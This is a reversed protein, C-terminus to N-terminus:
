IASYNNQMKPADITNEGLTFQVVRVTYWRCVCHVVSVCLTSCKCVTHVVSVCMYVSLSVYILSWTLEAQSINSVTILFTSSTLSAGLSCKQLSLAKALKM